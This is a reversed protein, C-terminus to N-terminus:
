GYQQSAKQVLQQLADRAGRRLPPCHGFCIADFDLGVLKKLSEMAQAPDQTVSPTPPRLKGFRYGLADGVILVKRSAVYLCISGPTHGPTHIVRIEQAVPLSDGDELPYDVPVPHGRLLPLFPRTLGAVLSHRHPSPLSEEGNVIAAEQHHVAVKALTAEVLKAASGIHDPHCHTLVVLRVRALSSGLAELGASILGLSGRGGTDVLVVGDDGFLATVRAGFARLQYVGPVVRVPRVLKM